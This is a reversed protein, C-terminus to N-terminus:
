PDHTRCQKAESAPHAPHHVMTAMPSSAGKNGHTAYRDDIAISAQIQMKPKCLM